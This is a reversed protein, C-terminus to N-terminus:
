LYDLHVNQEEGTPVKYGREIFSAKSTLQPGTDTM